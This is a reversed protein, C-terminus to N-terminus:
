ITLGKILISTASTARGIKVNPATSTTTLAGAGDVYYTSNATLGTQNASTGGLVNVLVSASASASANAIGIIKTGDLNTNTVKAEAIRIIGTQASANGYSLAVKSTQGSVLAMGGNTYNITTSLTITSDSQWTIVANYATSAAIGSSFYSAVTGLCCCPGSITYTSYFYTLVSNASSGDGISLYKILASGYNGSPLAAFTKALYTATVSTGSIQGTYIYGASTAGTTGAVAFRTSVLPDFSISCNTFSGAIMNQASGSTIVKTAPVVTMLVAYVDQNGNSILTLGLLNATLKSYDMDMSAQRSNIQPGVSTITTQTGQTITYTSISCAQALPNSGGDSYAFVFIDQGYYSFTSYLSSGGTYLTTTSQITATTGSVTFIIAKIYKVSSSGAGDVFIIMGKGATVPDFMVKLGSIGFSSGSLASTVVTGVTTTNVSTTGAVLTIANGSSNIGVAVFSGATNPDYACAVIGWSTNSTSNNSSLVTNNGGVAQTAVVGTVPTVSSGTTFQVVNGATIAAAATFTAQPAGGGSAATTQTTADPFTIGTSGLTVAM